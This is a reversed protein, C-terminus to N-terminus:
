LPASGRSYSSPKASASPVFTLLLLPFRLYLPASLELLVSGPDGVAENSPQHHTEVHQITFNLRRIRQGQDCNLPQYRNIQIFTKPPGVLDLTTNGIRMLM